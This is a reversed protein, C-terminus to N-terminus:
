EPLILALRNMAKAHVIHGAMDADIVLQVCPCGQGAPHHGLIPVQELITEMEQGPISNGASVYTGIEFLQAQDGVSMSIAAEGKALLAAVGRGVAPDALYQPVVREGSLILSHPVAGLLEDKSQFGSGGLGTGHRLILDAAEVPVGPLLDRVAHVELPTEGGSTELAELESRQWEGDLDARLILHLTGESRYKTVAELQDPTAAVTARGPRKDTGPDIHVVQVMEAVSVTQIAGDATEFSAWVDVHDGPEMGLGAAGREITLWVARKGRPILSAVGAGRGRAALREARIPEGQIIQTTAVRGVMAALKESTNELGPTPITALAINGGGLAEGPQIDRTATVVTQGLYRSVGEIIVYGGLALILAGGVGFVVAGVILGGM